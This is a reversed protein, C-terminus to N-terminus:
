NESTDNLGAPIFDPEDGNPAACTAEQNDPADTTLCDRNHARCQDLFAEDAWHHGDYHRCAQTTGMYLVLNASFTSPDHFLPVKIQAFPHDPDTDFITIPVLYADAVRLFEDPRVRHLTFTAEKALPLIGAGAADAYAQCSAILADLHHNTPQTM